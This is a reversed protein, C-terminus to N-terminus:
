PTDIPKGRCRSRMRQRKRRCFATSIRRFLTIGAVVKARSEGAYGIGSKHVPIVWGSQTTALTIAASLARRTFEHKVNWFIYFALRKAERETTDEHDGLAADLRDDFTMGYTHQQVHEEVQATRVVTIGYEYISREAAVAM